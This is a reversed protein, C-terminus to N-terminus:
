LGAEKRRRAADARLGDAALRYHRPLGLPQEAPEREPHELFAEYRNAAYDEFAAAIAEQTVREHGNIEAELATVRARLMTVENAVPIRLAHFGDGRLVWEGALLSAGDPGEAEVFHGSTPGPPGDFVIDIYDPLADPTETM